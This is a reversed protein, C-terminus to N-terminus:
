MRLSFMFLVVNLTHKVAMDSNQPATITAPISAGAGDADVWDLSALFALFLFSPQLM